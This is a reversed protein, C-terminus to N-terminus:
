RSSTDVEKGDKEIESEHWELIEKTLPDCKGCAVRGDWSWVMFTGTPLKFGKWIKKIEETPEKKGDILVKFEYDFHDPYKEKLEEKNMYKSPMVLHYDDAPHHDNQNETNM